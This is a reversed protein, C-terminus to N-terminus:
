KARASNRIYWLLQRFVGRILKVDKDLLGARTLIRKFKGLAVDPNQKDLYGIELLAKKMHDYMDEVDKSKALLDISSNEKPQKNCKRIEYCVILVAHAINLSAAEAVTPISVVENCLELEENSLGKDEPGFIISINNKGSLSSVKVALEHPGIFNRLHRTRATTGFVYSVDAIAERISHFTQVNQLISGGHTALWFAQDDIKCQPSVLKLCTIGMSNMARAVSGINGSHLTGVLVIEIDKTVTNQM